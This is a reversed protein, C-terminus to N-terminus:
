RVRRSHNAPDEDRALGESIYLRALDSVRRHQLEAAADLKARTEEDLRVKLTATLASV